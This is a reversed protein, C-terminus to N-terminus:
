TLEGHRLSGLFRPGLHLPKLVIGRTPVIEPRQYASLSQASLREDGNTNSSPGPLGDSSPGPNKSFADSCSSPTPWAPGPRSSQSMETWSSRSSGSDAPTGPISANSWGGAPTISRSIPARRHSRGSVARRPSCSAPPARTTAPMLILGSGSQCTSASGHCVSWAPSWCRPTM